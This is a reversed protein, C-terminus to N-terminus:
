RVERSLVLQLFMNKLALEKNGGEVINYMLLEIEKIHNTVDAMKYFLELYFNLNEDKAWREAIDFLKLTEGKQICAKVVDVEFFVKGVLDRDVIRKLIGNSFLVLRALTERDVIKLETEAFKIVESEKLPYFNVINLRSKLTTLLKDVNACILIFVTSRKGDEMLKLLSNSATKTLNEVNNIIVVKVYNEDACLVSDAVIQRSLKVSISKDGSDQLIINTNADLRYRGCSICACDEEASNLCNLSRAFELAFLKKGIGEPGLFLLSSFSERSNKFGATLKKLILKADNNGYLANFVDM